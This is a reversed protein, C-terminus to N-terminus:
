SSTDMLYIRVARAVSPTALLAEIIRRGLDEGQRERAVVVDWPVARFM